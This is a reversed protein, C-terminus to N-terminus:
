IQFNYFSNILLEVQSYILNDLFVFPMSNIFFLLDINFIRCLNLLLLCLTKVSSILLNLHHYFLGILQNLLFMHTLFFCLNLLPYLLSSIYCYLLIIYFIILKSSTVSSSISSCLRFQGCIGSWKDLVNIIPSERDAIM